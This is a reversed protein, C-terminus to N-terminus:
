KEEYVAFALDVKPIEKQTFLTGEQYMDWVGTGYYLFDTKITCDPNKIKVQITYTQQYKPIIKPFAVTYANICPAEAGVIEGKAVVTGTADLIKLDYLSDNAPGDWNAVWIDVHDFAKGTQFTQSFDTQLVLDKATEQDQLVSYERVPLAAKKVFYFSLIVVLFMGTGAAAFVFRENLIKKQIKQPIELICQFGDASCLLFMLMFPISYANDTEWICYFLYSGCITFVFIDLFDEKSRFMRYLFALLMMGTVMGHYSHLWVALFDSKGGVIYKQVKSAKKMTLFLTEVGDTGDSFTVRLKNRLLTLLGKPGMKSIREKLLAKDAEVREKKTKFSGTFADDASNYQGDGQASMMVWHLAPYGTEKPDFGVFQEEIKGYAMFTLAIGLLVACFSISSKASVKIKKIQLVSYLFIAAMTIIMTARIQYGAALVIGMWLFKFYRKWSLDENRANDYIWVAGMSFALSITSTYYMEGLLYWLPNILLLFLFYIGTRKSRYRSVLCFAALLGLNMFLLNILKMYEMWFSQPINLIDALKLWFYTFLCIPINNPYKMFYFSYHTNEFTKQKLLAVATDFIKLHDYRFSTQVTLVTWIQVFIMIFFLALAVQYFYREFFPGAARFWGALLLFMCLATVLFFLFLVKEPLAQLLADAGKYSDLAGYFIYASVPLLVIFLLFYVIKKFRLYISFGM